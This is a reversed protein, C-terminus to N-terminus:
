FQKSSMTPLGISLGARSVTVAYQGERLGSAYANLAPTEIIQLAPLTLAHSVFARSSGRHAELIAELTGGPLASGILLLSFL